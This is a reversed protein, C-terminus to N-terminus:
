PGILIYQVRDVYWQFDIRGAADFPRTTYAYRVPIKSSQSLWKKIEAHGDSFSFGCAGNHYSAPIDQWNQATINNIFYGDNISDPHEDITTWTMAPEPVESLKLFQRYQQMGWNRGGATPDAGGSTDFRGFFSNFALSRLRMPFGAQRQASSLFNDAPCKYIGVASGTYPALVGNRVWAENTVSRGDTGGVGWTMVNNVWNEFRGLEITRITESVGFNNAVRDDNDGAYMIWATMMQKNNNLCGIGQAKTKAKALAPLLMGALIAIIAIVVLLEILTFGRHPGTPAPDVIRMINVPEAGVSYIAPWSRCTHKEGCAMITEFAALAGFPTGVLTHWPPFADEHIRLPAHLAQHNMMRGSNV